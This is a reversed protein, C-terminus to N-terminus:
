KKRKRPKRARNTSAREFGKIKGKRGGSHSADLGDYNGYTGKKRNYKHLKAQYKLQKPKGQYERYEKAYNRDPNVPKVPNKRKRIYAVKEKATLKSM